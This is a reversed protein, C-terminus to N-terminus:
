CDGAMVSSGTKPDMFYTCNGDSGMHGGPGSHIWHRGGRSAALARLDFFPPGGEIGGVGLANVWYRGPVVSGALQMLYSVEAPHLERGNFFVGTGGGSANSRLTGGLKLGPQIQSVAPGSEVGWLGSVPDYWYRGAAIPVGYTQELAAVTEAALKEGNVVVLKQAAASTPLLFLTAAIVLLLVRQRARRAFVFTVM